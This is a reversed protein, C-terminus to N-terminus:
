VYMKVGEQKDVFSWNDLRDKNSCANTNCLLGIKIEQETNFKEIKPRPVPAKKKYIADWNIGNFFPHCKIDEADNEAGLRKLPNRVLLKSLLSKLEKSLCSPLCLSATQINQFLKEKSKDYYPPSGTVMEYLLVGLLYWDVTKNHGRRALMEPALYAVSGCFSQAMDDNNVGEKSLGFDTLLAHGEEDIVVNDPKLDRYIIDNKHLYELALLVECLYYRARSETFRKENRLIKGLDGGPCYELVMFLKDSTQFAYRLSVIFPHRIVSMVNKETLAYKVLNQSFVQKKNLLKMAYYKQSATQKVLYVEGFSGKGLQRIASFDEPGVTPNYSSTSGKGSSTPQTFYHKSPNLPQPSMRKDKLEQTAVIPSNKIKHMLIRPSVKPSHSVVPTKSRTVYDEFLKMTKDNAVLDIATMDSKNKLVFNPNYTLLTAITENCNSQVALHLSTNNEIDQKNIDANLDCLVKM